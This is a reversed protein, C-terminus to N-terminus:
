PRPPPPVPEAAEAAPTAETSGGAGEQMVVEVGPKEPSEAVPKMRGLGFTGAVLLLAFLLHAGLSAALFRTM